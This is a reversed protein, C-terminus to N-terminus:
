VWYITNRNMKTYVAISIVIVSVTWISLSFLAWTNVSMGLLPNRILELMSTFPNIFAFKQYQPPLFSVQWMLPTVLFIVQFILGVLQITDRFRSCITALMNSIFFVFLFALIIGLFFDITLAPHVKNSWLLLLVITPVNHLFILINRYIHAGVSIMFPLKDNMYLRADAVFVGTSENITQALFLYIVQGIGVYPLYAKVELRWILSWVLGSCLIQMFTTVSLWAQGLTSRAYRSRLATIGLLHVLRWHALTYRFDNLM